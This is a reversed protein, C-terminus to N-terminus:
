LYHLWLWALGFFGFGAFLVVLFRRELHRYRRFQEVLVPDPLKEYARQTVCCSLTTRHRSDLYGTQPRGLADYEHPFRKAVYDDVLAPGQRVSRVM